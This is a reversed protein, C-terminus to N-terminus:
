FMSVSKETVTHLRTPLGRRLRSPWSRLAPHLSMKHHSIPRAHLPPHTVAEPGRASACPCVPFSPVPRLSIDPPSFPPSCIPSSPRTSVLRLVPSLRSLTVC